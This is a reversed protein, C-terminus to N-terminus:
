RAGATSRADTSHASQRGLVVWLGAADLQVLPRYRM